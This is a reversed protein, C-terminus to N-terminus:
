GPGVLCAGRIKARGPGQTVKVRPPDETEASPDGGAPEGPVRARSGPAANTSLEGANEIAVVMQEAVEKVVPDVAGTETEIDM